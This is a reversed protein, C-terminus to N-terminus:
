FGHFGFRWDGAGSSQNVDTPLTGGPLPAANPSAPDMGLRPNTPASAETAASEAAPAAAAADDAALAARSGFLATFLALSALPTKRLLDRPTSFAVFASCNRALRNM